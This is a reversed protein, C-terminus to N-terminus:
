RMDALDAAQLPDSTFRSCKALVVEFFSKQMHITLTSTLLEYNLFVLKAERM